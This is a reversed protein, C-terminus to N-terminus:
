HPFAPIVRDKYVAGYLFYSRHGSVSLDIIKKTLLNTSVQLDWCWLIFFEREYVGITSVSSSCTKQIM